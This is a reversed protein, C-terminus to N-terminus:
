LSSITMLDHPWKMKIIPIGISTLNKLPKTCSQLLEMVLASSNSCDQVFGDIYLWYQILRQVCQFNPTMSIPIELPSSLNAHFGVDKNQHPFNWQWSVSKRKLIQPWYTNPSSLYNCGVPCKPSHNNVWTEYIHMMCVSWIYHHRGSSHRTHTNHRTHMLATLYEQM